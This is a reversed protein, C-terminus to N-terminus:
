GAVLGQFRLDAVLAAIAARAEADVVAGGEVPPVTSMGGGLVTRTGVRLAAVPWGDDRWGDATFVAFRQVDRLWAVCGQQPVAYRWGGTGFSAIEASRGAWDGTAGAAVIWAQGPVPAAPPAALTLTEVALHLLTDIGAVAENHTVEKQAQGVQLLPLAYRDSVEAM